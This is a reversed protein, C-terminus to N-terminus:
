RSVPKMGHKLMWSALTMWPVTSSKEKIIKAFDINSINIGKTERNRRADEPIVATM